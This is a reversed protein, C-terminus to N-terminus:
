REDGDSGSHVINDRELTRFQQLANVGEQTYNFMAILQEDTLDIELEKIEKYTPELLTAEVIVDIIDFMQGLLAEDEIDKLGGSTFLENATVLLKNPIKGQKVLVMMSPRKVRAVFPQGDAFDPFRVVAGQKYKQLDTVSTIPLIEDSNVIVYGDKLEEKKEEVANVENMGNEM